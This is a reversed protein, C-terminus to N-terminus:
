IKVFTICVFQFVFYKTCFLINVVENNLKPQVEAYNLCAQNQMRNACVKATPQQSCYYRFRFRLRFGKNETFPLRYDNYKM